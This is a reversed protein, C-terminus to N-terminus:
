SQPSLTWSSEKQDNDSLLVTGQFSGDSAINGGFFWIVQSNIVNFGIFKSQGDVYGRSSYTLGGDGGIVLTDTFHGDTTEDINLLSLTETQGTEASTLTGTYSYDLQYAAPAPTSQPITTVHVSPTSQSITPAHGSPVNSCGALFLMAMLVFLIARRWM